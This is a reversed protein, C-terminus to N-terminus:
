KDRMILTLVNQDGTREYHLDDVMNRMLLIGLGDARRAELPASVDPPAALLPNFAIGSDTVDLTFTGGEYRIKVTYTSRKHYAYSMKNITAEELYAHGCINSLAEEVALELRAIKESDVASDKAWKKIFGITAAVESVDADFTKEAISDM